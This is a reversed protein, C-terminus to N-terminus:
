LSVSVVKADKRAALLAGHDLLNVGKVLQYYRLAKVKKEFDTFSGNLERRVKEGYYFSKDKCAYIFAM